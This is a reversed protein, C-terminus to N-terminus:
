AALGEASPWDRLARAGTPTEAMLATPVKPPLKMPAATGTKNPTGACYALMKWRKSPNRQMQGFRGNLAPTKKSAVAGRGPKARVAGRFSEGGVAPM